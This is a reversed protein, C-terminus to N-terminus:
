NKTSSGPKQRLDANRIFNGSNKLSKRNFCKVAASEDGEKIHLDGLINLTVFDRPDHRVVDKYESIAARTKGQALHKEANRMANKKDFVM